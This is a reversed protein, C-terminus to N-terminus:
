YQGRRYFSNDWEWDPSRTEALSQAVTLAQSAQDKNQQQIASWRRLEEPSPVYQGRHPVKQGVLMNMYGEVGFVSNSRNILSPGFLIPGNDQYYDVLEQAEGLDTSARCEQWFPTDLRTNFKYHVGLFERTDEWAGAAQKNYYRRISPTSRMKNIMLFEALLKAGGCITTLATAELPEVFGSANGIAVVNAVWNNQWRGSTFRVVRTKTVKPNKNRFEIQAQEDTVFDSSYVYGRVVQHEHEIRWCWGADMTEATTYPLIPEDHARPWGGVVASNCFLTSKFSVFPEKLTKGLLLASFGSCDVYLDSSLVEGSALVLETVGHDDRGVHEITGDQIPIGRKVAELELFKVFKENEIHFGLDGGIKPDGHPTQIFAKGQAMLSSSLHCHEFDDECYFGVPREFGPMQRNLMGSFPFNYSPRPGWLLKLGLKWTPQAIKYFENQDIGLYTFLHMPLAPTTGEGVGIIGIEPSRLVRVNLDPMKIKLTLATLFGASGGGIVLASKVWENM